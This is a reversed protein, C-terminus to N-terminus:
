VQVSLLIGFEAMFLLGAPWVIGLVVERTLEM